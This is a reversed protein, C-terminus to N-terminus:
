YHFALPILTIFAIKTNLVAFLDNENLNSYANMDSHLRSMTISKSDPHNPKKMFPAASNSVETNQLRHILNKTRCWVFEKRWPASRLLKLSFVRIKQTSVRTNFTFMKNLYFFVLQVILLNNIKREFGGQKEPQRVFLMLRWEPWFSFCDSFTNYIKWKTVLVGWRKNAGGM